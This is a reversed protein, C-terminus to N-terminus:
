KKKSGKGRKASKGPPPGKKKRKYGERTIDYVGRALKLGARERTDYVGAGVKRGLSGM